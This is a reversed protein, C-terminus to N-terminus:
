ATNVYYQLLTNVETSSYNKFSYSLRYVTTEGPKIVQSVVFLHVPPSQPGRM